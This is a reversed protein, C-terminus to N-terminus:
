WGLSKSAAVARGQGGPESRLRAMRNGWYKGSEGQFMPDDLPAFRWRELLEKYSKADIEAKLDETLEM